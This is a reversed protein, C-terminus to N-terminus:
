ITLCGGYKSRRSLTRLTTSNRSGLSEYGYRFHYRPRHEHALRVQHPIQLDVSGYRANNRLSKSSLPTRGPCLATKRGRPRHQRPRHHHLIYRQCLESKCKCDGISTYICLVADPQQKRDPRDTRKWLQCSLNSVSGISRISEVVISCHVAILADGANM